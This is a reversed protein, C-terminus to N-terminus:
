DNLCGEAVLAHTAGMSPWMACTVPYGYEDRFVRLSEAEIDRMKQILSNHGGDIIMGEDRIRAAMRQITDCVSKFLDLHEPELIVGHKELRTVCGLHYRPPWQPEYKTPLVLELVALPRFIIM